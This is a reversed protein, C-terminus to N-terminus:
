KLNMYARSKDYVPTAASALLGDGVFGTSHGGQLATSLLNSAVTPVVASLARFVTDIQEPKADAVAVGNLVAQVLADGAKVNVADRKIQECSCGDTKVQPHLKKADAIM